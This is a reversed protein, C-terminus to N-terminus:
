GRVRGRLWLWTAALRDQPNALVDLFERFNQEERMESVTDSFRMQRDREGFRPTFDSQPTDNRIVAAQHIVANAVQVQAQIQRHDLTGNPYRFEIAPRGHVSDINTTNFMTYRCSSIRRRAERASLNGNFSLHDPLTNAYSTGRHTGPRGSRRFENADAAGMRYFQREFGLGIRALRQWSYTRHDLPAIGVHIHGGCSRDVYAGHRHLIETM